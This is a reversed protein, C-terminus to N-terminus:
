EDNPDSKTAIVDYLKVVWLIPTRPGLFMPSEAEAKFLRDVTTGEATEERSGELTTPRCLSDSIGTPSAHVLQLM